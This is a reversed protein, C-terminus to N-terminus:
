QNAFYTAGGGDIVEQKTVKATHGDAFAINGSQRHNLGFGHTAPDGYFYTPVQVYHSFGPGWPGISSDLWLPWQSPRKIWALPKTDWTDMGSSNHAYQLTMARPTGWYVIMSYLKAGYDRSVSPCMNFRNQSLRTGWAAGGGEGSEQFTDVVASHFHTLPGYYDTKYPMISENNLGYMQFCLFVQRLNSQCHLGDASSRILGVAPLLMLALISIVSIVVLLEMLTFAGRMRRFSRISSCTSSCTALCLHPVRIPFLVETQLQKSPDFHMDKM